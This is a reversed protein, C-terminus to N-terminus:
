SFFPRIEQGCSFIKGDGGAFEQGCSIPNRTEGVPRCFTMNALSEAGKACERPSFPLTGVTAASAPV